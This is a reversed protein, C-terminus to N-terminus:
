AEPSMRSQIGKKRQQIVKLAEFWLISFGGAFLCILLDNPHLFAFHFVQRLFPVYLVLGLLVLTGGLVWRLAGNPSRLTALITRSWSRNTLILSINAVTL